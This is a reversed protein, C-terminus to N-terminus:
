VVSARAPDLYDFNSAEFRSELADLGQERKFDREAETIPLLWLCRERGPAWQLDPGDVYPM